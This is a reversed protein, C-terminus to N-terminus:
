LLPPENEKEITLIGPLDLLRGHLMTKEPITASYNLIALAPLLESENEIAILGPM